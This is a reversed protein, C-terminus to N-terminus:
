LGLGAMIWERVNSMDVSENLAVWEYSLPNVGPAPMNSVTSRAPNQELVYNHLAFCAMIIKSQKERPYHPVGQLMQWKSKAVGFSREVVNCLSSHHFNFVEELNEVRRGNFEKM